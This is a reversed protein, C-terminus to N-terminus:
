EPSLTENESQIRFRRLMVLGHLLGIPAGIVAGLYVLGRLTPFGDAVNDKIAKALNEELMLDWTWYIAGFAIGIAIDLFVRSIVMKRPRNALLNTKM